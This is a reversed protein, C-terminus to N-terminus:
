QVVEGDENVNVIVDTAFNWNWRLMALPREPLECNSQGELLWCHEHVLTGVQALISSTLMSAIKSSSVDMNVELHNPGRRYWTTLQKGILVPREGGLLSIIRKLGGPADVVKFLFKFQTNKEEDTGQMFRTLASMLPKDSMIDELSRLKLIHNVFTIERSGLSSLIWNFVLFTPVNPNVDAPYSAFHRRFQKIESAIHDLKKPSHIMSLGDIAYPAQVSPQKLHKMNKGGKSEDLYRPGRVLFSAPDPDSYTNKFAAVNKEAVAQNCQALSIRWPLERHIFARSREEDESSLLPEADVFIDDDDDGCSGDRSVFPTSDARSAVNANNIDAAITAFPVAPRPPSIFHQRRGASSSSSSSSCSNGM